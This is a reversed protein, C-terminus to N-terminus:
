GTPRKLYIDSEGDVELLTEDGDRRRVLPNPASKVTRGLQQLGQRASM